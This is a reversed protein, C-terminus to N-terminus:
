SFNLWPASLLCCTPCSYRNSSILLVQLCCSPLLRVRRLRESYKRCRSSQLVRLSGCLLTEMGCGRAWVHKSRFKESLLAVPGSTMLTPCRRIGNGRQSTEGRQRNGAAGRATSTNVSRPSVKVKIQNGWFVNITAGKGDVWLGLSWQNFGVRSM